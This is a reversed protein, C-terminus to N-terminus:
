IAINDYKTFNHSYLFAEMAEQDFTDETVHYDQDEPNLANITTAWM